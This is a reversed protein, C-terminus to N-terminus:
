RSLGTASLSPAGGAPRPQRRDGARVGTAEACDALLRYLAHDAEQVPLRALTRVATEATRRAPGHLRVWRAVKGRGPARCRRAAAHERRLARRGARTGAATASRVARRCVYEIRETSYPGSVAGTAALAPALVLLENRGEDSMADNVLRGLVNLLPHVCAPDDGFPAGALLSVYEMLCVGDGPDQHAYRRLQAPPRPGTVSM